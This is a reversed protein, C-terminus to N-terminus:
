FRVALQLADAEMPNVGESMLLIDELAGTRVAFRFRAGTARQYELLKEVVSSVTEREGAAGGLATGGGSSGRGGGFSNNGNLRQQQQERRQHTLGIVFTSSTNSRSIQEIHAPAFTDMLFAAAHEYDRKPQVEQVVPLNAEAEEAISNRRPRGWVRAPPAAPRRQELQPQQQQQQKRKGSDFVSNHMRLTLVITDNMLARDSANSM